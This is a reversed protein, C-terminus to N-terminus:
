LPNSAPLVYIDKNYEGVGVFEAGRSVITELPRCAFCGTKQTCNFHELTRALKIKKAIELIQAQATEINPLPVTVPQPDHNLYWYSMKLIPREQVNKVLLYYIPLQLSDPDEDFKGTKFDIIHVGDSEPMYELWDIKGCLIINDEASLWFYPLDKRIKIAKRALPGPNHTLRKIMAMGRSKFKQEELPSYFGGKKGSISTWKKEFLELLSNHFREEAPLQSLEEIVQHVVQGLGLAPQMLTIKHNTKPDRYLNNLYYARPCKLYDGISSHSVWIASFKDKM